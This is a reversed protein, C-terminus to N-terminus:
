KNINFIDKLGSKNKLLSIASNPKTKKVFYERERYIYIIM